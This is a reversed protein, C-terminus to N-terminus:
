EKFFHKIETLIEKMDNEDYRQDCVISLEERYIKGTKENLCHIRSVPWHVPCYIHKSILYNKLANRQEHPLLVPVFLPCDEERLEKFIAYSQLEELLVKANKRRSTKILSIDLSLVRETDPEYGPLIACADLFEEAQEYEKLYEKSDTEGSIYRSKKEMAGKRLAIYSHPSDMSLMPRNWAGSKWAYGGTYFGAWKRLSGFYYDASRSVSSFLSHTLDEIIIGEPSGINIQSTYGFYSISITTDCGETESYDCTLIGNENIIVPYFVVEIGRKLFPSIMCSCCWSPVAAKVIPKKEAIDELIWELAATGSIFWQIDRPFLRTKQTTLPVDWFESGIERKMM